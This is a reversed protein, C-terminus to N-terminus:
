DNRMHRWGLRLRSSSPCQLSHSPNTFLNNTQALTSGTCVVGDDSDEKQKQKEKKVAPLVEVGNSALPLKHITIDRM